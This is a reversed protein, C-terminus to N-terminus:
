ASRPERVTSAALEVEISQQWIEYAPRTPDTPLDQLAIDTLHAAMHSSLGCLIECALDTHTPLYGARQRAKAAVAAGRALSLRYTGIETLLAEIAPREVGGAYACAFGIGSWLDAHRDPSFTSITACIRDIDAGALFWISRGLGQDFLRRAPASLQTPIAQETIYQQRSFIGGRFGYGDILFWGVVPDLHSLYLEPQKGLRAMALGAGVYVPYIYPSGPGALFAPLRNKWPFVSDMAVLGMGAGEYAFGRFEPEVSNLRPVLVEFRSDELTAHFNQVVIRFIKALHQAPKSEGQILPGIGKPLAGMLSKRLQGFSVSM